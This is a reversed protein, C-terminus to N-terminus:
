SVRAPREHLFTFAFLVIAAAITLLRARLLNDSAVRIMWPRLPDLRPDISEIRAQVPPEITRAAITSRAPNTALKQRAIAAVYDPDTELARAELELRRVELALQEVRASQDALQITHRETELFKGSLTAAAFLAGAILLSFWFCLSVLTGSVRPAPDANALDCPM